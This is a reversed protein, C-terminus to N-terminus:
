FDFGWLSQNYAVDYVDYALLAWGVGPILRGGVRAGLKAGAKAGAKMIKPNRLYASTFGVIEYGVKGGIREATSAARAYHFIPKAWPNFRAFTTHSYLMPPIQGMHILAAAPYLNAAATYLGMVGIAFADADSPPGDKERMQKLAWHLPRSTIDHKFEIPNFM